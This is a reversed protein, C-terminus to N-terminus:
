WGGDPTSCVSCVLARHRTMLRGVVKRSNSISRAAKEALRKLRKEFLCATLYAGSASIRDIPFAFRGSTISEAGADDTNTM